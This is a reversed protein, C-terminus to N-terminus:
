VERRGSTLTRYREEEPLYEKWTKSWPGRFSLVWSVPTTSDVKHFRDRGIFFPKLSPLYVNIHSSVARDVAPIVVTENLKGKLLWNICNFAHEHYADRSRGEFKLVVVSFLPKIECLWYGTVSSEAGGDKMKKFFKM